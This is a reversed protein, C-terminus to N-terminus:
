CLWFRIRIGSPFKTVATIQSVVAPKLARCGRLPLLYRKPSSLSIWAKSRAKLTKARRNFASGPLLLREYAAGIM